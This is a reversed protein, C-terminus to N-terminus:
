AKTDALRLTVPVPKSLMDLVPCHADVAAKLRELAAPTATSEIHVTGKITQYGARVSEDVGFFGRLDIDGELEVSVRDLEIGMATAYAKYTIEQCAGLAALLLEIPNPGADGGGLQEPEDVVVGHDRITVDSRFGDVLESRTQFTALAATPKRRYQEQTAAIMERLTENM